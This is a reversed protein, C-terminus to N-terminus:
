HVAFDFDFLCCIICQCVLANLTEFPGFCDYYNLDKKLYVFVRLMGFVPFIVHM